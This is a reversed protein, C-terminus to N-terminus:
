DLGIVVKKQNKIKYPTLPFILMPKVNQPGVARSTLIGSCFRQDLSGKPQKVHVPEAGVDDYTRDTPRIIEIPHEDMTLTKGALAVAMQIEPNILNILVLQCVYYWFKESVGSRCLREE